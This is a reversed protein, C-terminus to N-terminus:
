VVDAFGPRLRDFWSVGIWAVLLASLFYVIYSTGNPLVGWLIAGRIQEVIWTIPNLYILPQLMEPLSSVPYFVPSVFLVALTLLGVIQGVDRLYVATASIILSVGLAVLMLPLLLLPVFIVTWQLASETLLLYLLLVLTSIIAQFLSTLIAVWALSELPFIVKKVYQRNATILDVSHNLCESFYTHVILGSFLITAFELSGGQQELWRVKLITGFVVTYMALMLIPTVLSWIVGLAAGRFRLLINRRTLQYILVRNSVLITFIKLIGINQM